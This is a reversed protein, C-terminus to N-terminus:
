GMGMSREEAHYCTSSCYDGACETGCWICSEHVSHMYCEPHYGDGSHGMQHAHDCDTGTECGPCLYTYESDPDEKTSSDPESQPLPAPKPEAKKRLHPPVWANATKKLQPVEEEEESSTSSVSSPPDDSQFTRVEAPAPKMLAEPNDNAFTVHVSGMEKFSKDWCANCLAHDKDESTIMKGCGGFCEGPKTSNVKQLFEMIASM